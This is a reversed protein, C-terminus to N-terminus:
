LLILALRGEDANIQEDTTLNNGEANEGREEVDRHKSTADKGDASREV